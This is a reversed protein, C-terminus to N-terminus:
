GWLNGDACLAPGAAPVELAPTMSQSELIGEPDALELSPSGMHRRFVGVKLVMQQRLLLQLIQNLLLLDVQREAPAVQGEPCQGDMQFGM